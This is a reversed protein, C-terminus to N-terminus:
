DAGTGAVRGTRARPGELDMLVRCSRGTATAARRANAAMAAWTAADDHACNIRMVDAGRTALELVHEYDEADRSALTVMIRVRRGAPTPGFVAETHRRLLRNGCYFTAARPHAIPADTIGALSAIVADLNELVRAECRGLSSLGLPMLSEQLARLDRRRLAVYRALNVASPLFARRRLAPRWSELLEDGEAVVQSRLDVLEALLAAPTQTRARATTVAMSGGEEM